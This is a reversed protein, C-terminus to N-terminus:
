QYRKFLTLLLMSCATPMDCGDAEITQGRYNARVKYTTEGASWNEIHASTDDTGLVTRLNAIAESVPDTTTYIGSASYSIKFPGGTTFVPSGSAWTSGSTPGFTTPTTDVSKAHTAM